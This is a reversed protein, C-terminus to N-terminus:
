DCWGGGVQPTDDASRHGGRDLLAPGREPLHLGRRRLVGSQVRPPPPRRAGPGVDCGYMRQINHSGPGVGATLVAEATLKAGLTLGAGVALGAGATLQPSLSWTSLCAMLYLSYSFSSLLARPNKRPRSVCHFPPPPLSRPLPFEAAELNGECGSVRPSGPADKRIPIM